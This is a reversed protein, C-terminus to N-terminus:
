LNVEVLEVLLMDICEKLLCCNSHAYQSHCAIQIPATSKPMLNDLECNAFAIFWFILAWGHLVRHLPRSKTTSGAALPM